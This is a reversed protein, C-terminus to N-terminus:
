VYKCITGTVRVLLLLSISTRALASKSVAESVVNIRFFIASLDFSVLILLVIFIEFATVFVLVIDDCTTFKISVGVVLLHSKKLISLARTIFLNFIDLLLVSSTTM